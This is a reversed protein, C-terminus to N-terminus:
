KKMINVIFFLNIVEVIIRRAPPNIVLIKPINIFIIIVLFIPISPKDNYISISGVIDKNMLRDWNPRGMAKDLNTARFVLFLLFSKKEIIGIVIIIFINIDIIIM